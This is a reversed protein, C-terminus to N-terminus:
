EKPLTALIWARHRREDELHGALLTGLQDLDSFKKLAQEYKLNTVDENLKMAKLITIDDGVLDAIVVKGQTLIKKLDAGDAPSGGLERVATALNTIHRRHDKLFENLKAKYTSSELRKIASEYAAVADYDLEILNNLEAIADKYKSNITAEM